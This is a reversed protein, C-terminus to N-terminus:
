GGQEKRKMKERETSMRTRWVDLRAALHKVKAGAIAAQERANDLRKVADLYHESTRAVHEAKTVPIDGAERLAASFAIKKAEELRAEEASLRASLELMEGYESLFAEIM